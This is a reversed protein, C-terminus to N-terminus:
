RFRAKAEVVTGVIHCEGNIEIPRYLPNLARLYRNPGDIVLEKFTAEQSDSLKAVVLDRNEPMVAPDVLIRYGEPISRGNPATMSDGAVNLWFAQESTGKPIWDWEDADGPEYIDIVESWAGAQVWSIVPARRLPAGQHIAEINRVARIMPRNDVLDHITIDLAEAIRTLDRMSPERRDLEYNGVRSQSAWGCAEALKAQSWGKAQRYHKIKSGITNMAPNIVCLSM